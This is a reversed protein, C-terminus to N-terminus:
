AVLAPCANMIVTSAYAGLGGPVYLGAITVPLHRAGLTQWQAGLLEWGPTMERRHFSM